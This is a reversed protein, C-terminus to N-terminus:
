SDPLPRIQEAPIGGLLWGDPYDGARVVANAAVASDSGIRAGRSIVAGAAVFSNRGISVPEVRRKRDNFWDPGRRLDKDSDIVTVREALGVQEAIEVREECHVVDGYSIFARSGVTLEGSSKVVAWDRVQVHDALAVTGSRIQLSCGHILCHDGIGLVNSGQAWVEISVDPGFWVGKGLRLTFTGDGEGRARVDLRPLKAFDPIGAAELVLRGGSRRLNFDLLLVWARFQIAQRLRRVLRLPRRAATPVRLM